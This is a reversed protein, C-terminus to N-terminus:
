RTAKNKSQALRRNKSQIYHCRRCNRRGRYVYVTEPSLGHGNICVKKPNIPHQLQMGRKRLKAVHNHVSGLSSALIAAIEKATYGKQYLHILRLSKPASWVPCGHISRHVSNSVVIELNEPRNDDKIGNIHHIVEGPRLQRQLTEEAVRRHEYIGNFVLYGSSHRCLKGPSRSRGARMEIGRQQLRKWVSGGLCGYQQAITTTGYGEAYLREMEQMQTETFTLPRRFVTMENHRNDYSISATPNRCGGIRGVREM